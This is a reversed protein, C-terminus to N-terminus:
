HSRLPLQAATVRAVNTKRARSLMEELKMLARGYLGMPLRSWEAGRCRLFNLQGRLEDEGTTRWSAVTDRDRTPSMLSAYTRLMLCIHAANASGIQGGLADNVAPLLRTELATVRGLLGALWPPVEAPAPPPPTPDPKGFFHDRLVRACEVQYREIKARVAPAVRGADITALWMPLSDLHLAMMDYNKGDSGTAVITTTVAWPKGKLKTMQGQETLGISECVRKVAVWVGREDQQALLEDGHFPVKVIASM